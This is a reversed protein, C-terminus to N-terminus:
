LSCIDVAVLSSITMSRDKKFFINKIKLKQGAAERSVYTICIKNGVPFRWDSFEPGHFSWEVM